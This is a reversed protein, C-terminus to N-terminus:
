AEQLETNRKYFRKPSESVQSQPQGTLTYCPLFELDETVVWFVAVQFMVATFAEFSAYFIYIYKFAILFFDV